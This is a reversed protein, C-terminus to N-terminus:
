RSLGTGGFDPSTYVAGFGLQAAKRMVDVPFTEQLQRREFAVPISLFAECKSGM